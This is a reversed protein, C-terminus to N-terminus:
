SLISKGSQVSSNNFTRDIHLLPRGQSYLAPSALGIGTTRSVCILKCFEGSALNGNIVCSKECETVCHSQCLIWLLLTEKHMHCCISM